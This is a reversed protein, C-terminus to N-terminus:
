FQLRSPPILAAGTIRGEDLLFNYTACANAKLMLFAITIVTQGTHRFFLLLYIM